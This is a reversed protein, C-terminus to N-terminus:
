DQGLYQNVLKQRTKLQRVERTAHSHRVAAGITAILKANDWPKVVFDMAGEKIAKIAVNLSGYATMLIVTTAPAVSKIFKLWDLGEQGSTVGTVFNMDLLVADFDQQELLSKLQTPDAETRIQAFEKKLVIEAALLVDHDDDVILINGPQRSEM